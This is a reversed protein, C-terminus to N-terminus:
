GTQFGKIKLHASARFVISFSKETNPKDLHILAIYRGAPLLYRVNVNLSDVFKSQSGETHSPCDDYHDYLYKIGVPPYTGQDLQFIRIGVPCVPDSQSQMISIVLPTVSERITILYQPNLHYSTANSVQGGANRDRIFEGFLAKVFTLNYTRGRFDFTSENECSMIDAKLPIEKVNELPSSSFLRLLFAKEQGKEATSAIIVYRGPKLKFRYVTQLEPTYVNTKQGLIELAVQRRRQQIKDGLVKFVDCRISVNDAVKKKSQVIQVVLPMYDNDVLGNDTVTFTFRQNQLRDHFGAACNGSWEGYINLVYNLNDSRGDCDFDPTLSCIVTQSFYKMFDSLSIYFEGDDKEPPTVSSRALTSWEPSGDSWAGKWEGEGWPNRVRILKDKKNEYVGTLSYAHGGVLGKYKDHEDPVVCSVQSGCAVANKIRKFLAVAKEEEKCDQLDIREGIGGTLMLYADGPQGGYVAGYSGGSIKAFAKELFAVWLENPDSASHAGWLMYTQNRQIVPLYDDIYIDEWKGFKFFRAHFVGDYKNPNEINYADEPIVQKLMDNRNAIEAVVALFYCTGATGQGIDFCTAGDTFLKPNELFDKPRKWEINSNDKDIATKLPFAEDVYLKGNPIQPRTSSDGDRFKKRVDLVKTLSGTENKRYKVQDTVDDDDLPTEDESDDDSPPPNQNVPTNQNSPTGAYNQYGRDQWHKDDYNMNSERWDPQYAEPRTNQSAYDYGADYNKNYNDINKRKAAQSSAGCGM